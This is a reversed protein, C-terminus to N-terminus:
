VGNKRAATVITHSATYDIDYVNQEDTIQPSALLTVVCEARSAQMAKEIDDQSTVEGIQLSVRDQIKLQQLTAKFRDLSHQRVFVTVKLGRRAADFVVAQGIYGTCGFCLVSGEVKPLGQYIEKMPEPVAPLKGIYSKLDEIEATATKESFWRWAEAM